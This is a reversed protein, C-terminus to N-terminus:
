SPVPDYLPVNDKEGAQWVTAGHRINGESTVDGLVRKILVGGSSAHYMFGYSGQARTLGHVENGHSALTLSQGNGGPQAVFGYCAGSEDLVLVMNGHLQVREGVESGLVEVGIGRGSIEISNEAIKSYRGGYHVIGRSSGENATGNIRITNGTVNVMHPTGGGDVRIGMTPSVNVSSREGLEITNGSITTLGLTAGPNDGTSIGSASVDKIYNGVISLRAGSAGIGLGVNRFRNGVVTGEEVNMQFAPLLGAVGVDTVHNHALIVGRNQAQIGGPWFGEFASHEFWCHDITLGDCDQVYVHKPTHDADATKTGYLRLGTLRTHNAGAVNLLGFNSPPVLAWGAADCRLRSAYGSGRLTVGHRLVIGKTLRYDGPPFFVEGGKAPLADVASQIAGTDDAVGDGIAGTFAVSPVGATNFSAAPTPIARGTGNENALVLVFSTM